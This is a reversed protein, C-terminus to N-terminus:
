LGVAAWDQAFVCKMELGFYKGFHPRFIVWTQGDSAKVLIRIARGAANPSPLHKFHEM